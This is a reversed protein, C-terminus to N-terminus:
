GAPATDRLHPTELPRAVRERAPQGLHGASRQASWSGGAVSPPRTDHAGIDHMQHTRCGTPFRRYGNPQCTGFVTLDDVGVLEVAIATEHAPRSHEIQELGALDGRVLVAKEIRPLRHNRRLLVHPSGHGANPPNM